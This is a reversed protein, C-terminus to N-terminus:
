FYASRNDKINAEERLSEIWQNVVQQQRQSLLQQRIQEREADALTGPEDWATVEVVYAANAGGVVGSREGEELGFVTGTFMPDRGLGPIVDDNYRVGEQTRLRTGLADALDELSEASEYADQMRQVQVGRRKERIVRPEIQDQVESFSRYGAGQIGTLHAVLFRDDLEIVDSIDGAEAASLFDRLARSQGLEPFTADGEQATLENVPVEQNAAEEEFDGEEAYFAIDDMTDELERITALSPRIELAMIALKVEVQPAGDEADENPQTEMIRVLQANGGEVIIDTVRGPTPDEFVAEAVANPLSSADVFEDNYPVASGNRELFSEVDDAETDVFDSRMNELDQTVASSDESTPEKPLTAYQVEYTRERRFDERNEDYYNRLDSESVDIEDSSVSAYNLAVYQVDAQANQRFHFDEVDRNSVHVTSQLLTNMKNQRREERLFQEMQLWSERMDPNQALNAILQQDVEGSDDSFQQRIVPHPNDGYVMDMVEADTVQIGLRDMEQEILQANVLQTYTQERVIDQMQPTVNGDTQQRVRQMQQEVSQQFEQYTINAGNVVAINGTPQGVTSFVDSDQLTWIVGFSIVLIWLIVGTNERLKNMVGM